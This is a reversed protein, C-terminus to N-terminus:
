DTKGPSGPNGYLIDALPPKPKGTVPAPKTGKPPAFVAAMEEFGPKGKLGEYIAGRNPAYRVVPVGNESTLVKGDKGLVPVAEKTSDALEKLIDRQLQTKALQKAEEIRADIQAQARTNAGAESSNHISLMRSNTADNRANDGSERKDALAVEHERDLVSEGKRFKRDEDAAAKNIVSQREDRRTERGEALSEALELRQRDLAARQESIIMDGATNAISKGMSSLGGSLSFGM